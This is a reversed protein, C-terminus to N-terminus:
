DGYIIKNIQFKNDLDWTKVLTLDKTSWVCVPGGLLDLGEGKLDEGMCNKPRVMYMTATILYQNDRTVRMARINAGTTNLVNINRLQMVKGDKLSLKVLENLTALCLSNSDPSLTM